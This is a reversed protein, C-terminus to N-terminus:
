ALELGTARPRAFFSGTAYSPLRISEHSFVQIKSYNRVFLDEDPKQAAALLDADEV